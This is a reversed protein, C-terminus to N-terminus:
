PPSTSANTTTPPNAAVDHERAARNMRATTEEDCSINLATQLTFALETPCGAKLMKGLPTIPVGSGLREFANANSIVEVWKNELLSWNMIKGNEYKCRTRGGWKDTLYEKWQRRKQPKLTNIQAMFEDYTEKDIGVYMKPTQEQEKEENEATALTQLNGKRTRKKQGMINTPSSLESSSFGELGQKRSM